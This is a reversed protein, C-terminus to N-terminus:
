TPEAPQEDDLPECHPCHTLTGIEAVGLESLSHMPFETISNTHCNHCWINYATPEGIQLHFTVQKKGDM